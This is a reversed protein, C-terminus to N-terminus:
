GAIEDVRVEGPRQRGAHAPDGDGGVLEVLMRVKASHIATTRERRCAAGRVGAIDAGSRRVTALDAATLKGALAVRLGRAHGRRVWAATAHPSWLACLGPGAKDATDLLVGSAGARAAADLVADPPLAAAHPADAYAVAVVDCGGRRAARLLLAAREVTSIGALGVKVFAV